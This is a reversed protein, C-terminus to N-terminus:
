PHARAKFTVTVEDGPREDSGGFTFGRCRRHSNCWAKAQDVDMTEMMVNESSTIYGHVVVYSHRKEEQLEDELAQLRLKLMANEEVLKGDLESTPASLMLLLSLELM